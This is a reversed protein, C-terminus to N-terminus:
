RIVYLKCLMDSLAAVDLVAWFNCGNCVFPLTVGWGAGGRPCDAAWLTCDPLQPRANTRRSLCPCIKSKCWDSTRSERCGSPDHLSMGYDSDVEEGAASEPPFEKKMELHISHSRGAGRIARRPFVDSAPPLSWVILTIYPLHADGM